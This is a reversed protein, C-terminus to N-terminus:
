QQGAPIAALDVGLAQTWTSGAPVTIRARHYRGVSRQPCDGIRNPAIDPGFVEADQYTQRASISVTPSGGDVMPRSGSVFALKGPVIQMAKTGIQAQLTSGNFAALFSNPDAAMIQPTGGIWIRSDLSFPVTDLNTYGLADMSDMTVNFSLARALWEASIAAYSWRQIDWRYILLTDPTGGASSTSPFIWMIAKNIMDAAGIVNELRSQDLQGFFWKDIKDAGIPTSTNGDFVYFGDEALYYVVNGLPVISNSARTGRVNEAPYFDFIDPPGVYIMRDVGRQFFVACDCGTLNAVLGTIDGLSGVLDSYDSQVQQAAASGPIPWNTPDNSGSWWIRSPNLGGVSDSTNAVITFTKAVAIHRAQPADPSLDAFLTSSGMVFSQIPDAFDTALIISNFQAFRWNDGQAVSYGGVKSVDTWALTGPDIDSLTSVTGGFLYISEDVNQAAAVGLCISPLANASYPSLGSMPGYSLPTRAIVNLAIDTAEALDPMDPAFEGVPVITM